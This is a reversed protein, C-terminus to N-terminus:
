KKLNVGIIGGLIGSIMSCLIMIITKLNFSFSKIAISSAVYIVLLYILGVAMGNLIGNKDIKKNCFISGLLISLNSIVIIVIPIISESVDAYTLIISFIFLAILSIIISILSGKLIRIFNNQSKEEKDVRSVVKM